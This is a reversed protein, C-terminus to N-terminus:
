DQLDEVSAGATQPVESSTAWISGMTHAAVDSLTAAGESCVFFAPALGPHAEEGRYVRCRPEATLWQADQATLWAALGQQLMLCCGWPGLAPMSPQWGVPMTREWLGERLGARICQGRWRWAGKLEAHAPRGARRLLGAQVESCTSVGPRLGPQATQLASTFRSLLRLMLCGLGDQTTLTELCAGFGLAQLCLPLPRLSACRTGLARGCGTFVEVLSHDGLVRLTVAGSDTRIRGGVRRMPAAHDFVMTDPDLKQPYAAQPGWVDPTQGLQYCATEYM